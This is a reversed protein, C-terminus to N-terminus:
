DASKGFPVTIGAYIQLGRNRVTFEDSEKNLNIFGWMYRVEAFLIKKGQPIRVGAGVGASLDVQRIENDAEQVDGDDYVYKAKSRLGLSPGALIATFCLLLTFFRPKESFSM